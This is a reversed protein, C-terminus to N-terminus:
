HIRSDVPCCAHEQELALSPPHTAFACSQSVLPIQLLPLHGPFDGNYAACVSSVLLYIFHGEVIGEM